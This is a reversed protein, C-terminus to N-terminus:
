APAHMRREHHLVAVVAIIAALYTGFQFVPSLAASQGSAQASFSAFDWAGHMLMWIGGSVRRLVYFAAGMLSAFVFQLLSAYLPIGFLANPIHMAGFLISSWVCVWHEKTTSGRAGTVIVGRALLEENFGVM